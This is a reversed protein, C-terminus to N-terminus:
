IPVLFSSPPPYYNVFFLRCGSYREEAGGGLDPYCQKELVAVKEGSGLPTCPAQLTNQSDRLNYPILNVCSLQVDQCYVFEKLQWRVTIETPIYYM